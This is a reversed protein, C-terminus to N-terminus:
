EAPESPREGDLFPLLPAFLQSPLEIDRERAVELAVAGAFLQAVAQELSERLRLFGDAAAQADPSERPFRRLDGETLPFTVDSVADLAPIVEDQIFQASQRLREPSIEGNM